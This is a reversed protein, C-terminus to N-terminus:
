KVLSFNDGVIVPKVTALEDFIFSLREDTPIPNLFFIKKELYFAFMIEAFTAGGIYNPIGHKEVNVTLIADTNRIEDFHRRTLEPKETKIHEESGKLKQADDYSKLSHKIIHFWFVEIKM